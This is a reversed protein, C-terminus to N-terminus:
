KGALIDQARKAEPTNPHKKILEQLVLKGAQDKKLKLFAMGQKLM